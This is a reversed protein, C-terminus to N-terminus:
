GFGGSGCSPGGTSSLSPVDGGSSTFASFMKEPRPTGCSPCCLNEGTDGVKQFEEFVNGCQKCKYEYIPM